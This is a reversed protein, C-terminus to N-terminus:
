AVATSQAVAGPMELAAPQAMSSTSESLYPRIVKDEFWQLSFQMHVGPAESTVLAGANDLQRLGLWDEAYLQSARLPVLDDGDQMSFWASDRPVVTTDNSFRVLVLKKLTALRQAYVENKVERENNIDALFASHELYL